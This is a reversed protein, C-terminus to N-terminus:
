RCSKRGQGVEPNPTIRAHVYSLVGLDCPHNASMVPSLSVRYRRRRQPEAEGLVVKNPNVTCEPHRLRNRRTDRIM